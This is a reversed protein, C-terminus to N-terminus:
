MNEEKAKIVEDQDKKLTDIDTVSSYTAKLSPVPEPYGVKCIYCPDAYLDEVYTKKIFAVCKDHTDFVKKIKMLGSNIGDDKKRLM